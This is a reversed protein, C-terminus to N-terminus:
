IGGDKNKRRELMAEFAEESLKAFLIGIMMMLEKAGLPGFSKIKECRGLDYMLQRIRFKDSESLGEYGKDMAARYVESQEKGELSPGDCRGTVIEMILGM